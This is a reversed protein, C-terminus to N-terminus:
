ESFPWLDLVLSFIRFRGASVEGCITQNLELAFLLTGIGPRSHQQAERGGDQFESKQGCSMSRNDSKTSIKYASAYRCASLPWMICVALKWFGLRRVAAMKFITLNGYIGSFINSSKSSIQHVVAHISGSSTKLLAITYSQIFGLKALPLLFRLDLFQQGCSYKNSNRCSTRRCRM